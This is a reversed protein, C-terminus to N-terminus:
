QAQAFHLLTTGDADYLTLGDGNLSYSATKFLNDIFLQETAMEEESGARETLEGGSFSLAHTKEDATYGLNLLFNIGTFGQATDERFALVITEPQSVVANGTNAAALQWSTGVLSKKVFRATTTGGSLVLESDTVSWTDATGLLALYQTEFEMADQSGAMRTSALNPAFTIKNGNANLSGMYNNVGSFGAIGYEGAGKDTVSLTATVIAVEAGDKEFSVLEWDGRADVKATKSACSVLLGCSAAALALAAFRKM